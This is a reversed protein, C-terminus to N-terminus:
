PPPPHTIPSDLIGRFDDHDEFRVHAVSRVRRLVVPGGAAHVLEDLLDRPEDRDVPERGFVPLLDVDDAELVFRRELGPPRLRFVAPGLVAAPPVEIVTRPVPRYPRVGIRTSLQSLQDLRFPKGGAFGYQGWPLHYSRTMVRRFGERARILGNRMVSAASKHRM